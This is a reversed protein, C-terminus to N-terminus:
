EDNCFGRPTLPLISSLAAVVSQGLGVEAIM